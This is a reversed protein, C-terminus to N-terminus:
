VKYVGCGILLDGPLAAVFSVKQNVAGTIPNVTKYDVWGSGHEDLTRFGNRLLTEWELGQIERLHRGTLEPRPGFATFIGQRNFIFIYMDRDFFGGAKDLFQPVAQQLGGRRILEMARGVLSRAEDAAGQRLRITTVATSLAQIREELDSAAHASERVMDANRQTLESAGDVAESIEGLGQVQAQGGAAMETVHSRLERVGQVIQDLTAGAREIRTVGTEVQEASQAILRKIQAASEASRQALSRVESAVVAFGKGQEGARAAEVAANLALINTQFAISDIVAIIESMERSSGEIRRVQQVADRMLAEGSGAVGHVRDAVEHAHRAAEANRRVIDAVEQVRGAARALSAAQQETREALARTGSALAQGSMGVISANNRIQAVRNSLAASMADIRQLRADATGDGATAVHSLDGQSVAEITADLRKLGAGPALTRRLLRLIM